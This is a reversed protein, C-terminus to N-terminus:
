SGAPWTHFVIHAVPVPLEHMQEFRELAVNVLRRGWVAARKSLQVVNLRKKVGWAMHRLHKGASGGSGVRLM